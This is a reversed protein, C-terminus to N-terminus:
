SKSKGDRGVLSLDQIGHKILRLSTHLRSQDVVRDIASTVAEKAEGGDEEGVDLGEGM